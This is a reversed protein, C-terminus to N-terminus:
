AKAVRLANNLFRKSENRKVEVLSNVKAYDIEQHAFVGLDSVLSANRNSLEFKNLIDAVKYNKGVFSCFEKNYLISFVTGHFSDTLVFKAKKIYGLFELPSIVHTKHGFDCFHGVVVVEAAIKKALAEIQKTRELNLHYCYVLLYNKPPEGKEYPTWDILFTPDLVETVDRATVKEVMEVSLGDRASLYDIKSLLSTKEPYNLFDEYTMGNASPAYSVRIKARVKGGFFIPSHNFTKNNLNWIEDSGLIVADYEIESFDRVSKLLKNVRSYVLANRINFYLRGLNKTLLRRLKTKSRERSHEEIFETKIQYGKFYEQLALAQLFSGFNYYENFVTVVAVQNIKNM